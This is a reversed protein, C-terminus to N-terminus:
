TLFCALACSFPQPKAKKERHPRDKVSEEGLFRIRYVSKECLLQMLHVRPGQLAYVSCIFSRQIRIFTHLRVITEREGCALIAYRLIDLVFTQM